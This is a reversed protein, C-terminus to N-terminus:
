GSVRRFHRRHQSGLERAAVADAEARASEGKRLYVFACGMLSDAGTKAEIAQDYAQLAYDLKGLKLLVMGLSDKTAGSDPDIKLSDRCDQLASKLMIGATAKIWCLSNLEAASKSMTRVSQLLKRSEDARGVKYLLIAKQVQGYRDDPEPKIRDLLQEASKADESSTLLKAKALLADGSKPDLKLAADIDAM